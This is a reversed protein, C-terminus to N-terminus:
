GKWEQAWFTYEGLREFLLQILSTALIQLIIIKSRLLSHFTLNEMSPSTMNKYPQLPIKANIVRLFSLTLRNMSKSETYIHLFQRRTLTKWMARSRLIECHFHAACSPSHPRIKGIHMARWMSCICGWVRSKQKVRAVRTTHSLYMSEISHLWHCVRATIM